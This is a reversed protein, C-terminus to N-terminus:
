NDTSIMRSINRSPVMILNDVRMIVGSTLLYALIVELEERSVNFDTLAISLDDISLQYCMTIVDQITRTMSLVRTIVQLREIQKSTM